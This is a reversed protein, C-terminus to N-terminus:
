PLQEVTTEVGPIPVEGTLTPLGATDDRLALAFFARLYTAAFSQQQSASPRDSTEPCTTDDGGSAGPGSTWATNFFNHNARAVRVLFTPQTTKGRADDFFQHDEESWCESSIVAFPIETVLTDFVGVAGPSALSVAAGIRVGSPLNGRNGDAAELMVAEGAVSHGLLGVRTMDVHGRFDVDASRGTRPDTFRGALAGGGSTTLRKWLSLHRNILEARQPAVGVFHNIGNASLSVVVFGDGALKRGLYDYGRHSPYPRVGQPCPWDWKKDDATYCPVQQGHLLVVLPVPESALQRPYHVVAKMESFGPWGPDTFERDGLDYAVTAVSAGSSAPTAAAADDAAPRDAARSAGFGAAAALVVALLAVAARAPHTHVM